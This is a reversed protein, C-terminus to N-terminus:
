TEKKKGEKKRVQAADGATKAGPSAAQKVQVPRGPVVRLQGDVVVMEGAKLGKAIVADNEFSREVVVPRLEAVHDASVVFVHQGTQSTQLASSPVTLAQPEALTVAVNVFQGPWLRHEKNAFTGKLKITGTSSDVANDIFTLEGKETKENDGAPIAEVPLTREAQFRHLASLHQQPVGFTVNIPSVQNITVLPAPENTRVLDGEHVDIHGTRGSLPAHISCFELQLRTGAVRSEAAAVEAEQTRVDDQMKQFQEKSIMQEANLAQYRTMQSRANELQVKGKQMDAQASQLANQFPRPDIEFLLDGERVDQGEKIAIRMLTGTVQSRVSTSRLPEVAGIADIVLPVKKTVAEGVLVPAAGGGGRGGKGKASNGDAKAQQTGGCGGLLLILSLASPLAVIPRRFHCLIM